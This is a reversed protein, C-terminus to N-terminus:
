SQSTTGGFGEPSELINGGAIYITLIEPEQWTKKSNEVQNQM